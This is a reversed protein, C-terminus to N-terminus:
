PAETYFRLEPSWRPSDEGGPRLLDRLVEGVPLGSVEESPLDTPLDVTLVLLTVAIAFVGDSFGIIRNDFHRRVRGAAHPAVNPPREESM